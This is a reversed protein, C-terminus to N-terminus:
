GQSEAYRSYMRFIEAAFLEAEDGGAAPRIEVIVNKNDNPTKPLLLLELEKELKAKESKLTPLEEVAIERLEEDDSTLIEENEAIDGLLSFYRKIKTVNSEMASKEKAIKALKEPDSSIGPASIQAELEQYRDLIKQLQDKMKRFLTTDLRQDVGCILVSRDARVARDATLCADPLRCAPLDLDTSIQPM